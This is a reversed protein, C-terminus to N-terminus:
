QPQERAANYPDAQQQPAMANQNVYQQQTAMPNQNVYQQQPMGAYANGPNLAGYGNQQQPTMAAQQQQVSGYQMGYANTQMM